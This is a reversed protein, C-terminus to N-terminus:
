PPRLISRHKQCSDKGEATEMRPLTRCPYHIYFNPGKDRIWDPMQIEELFKCMYQDTGTPPVYAGDLIHHKANTEALYGLGAIVSAEMPPTDNTQSFQGINESICTNEMTVKTACETRINNETYYLKTVAGNGFKQRMPKWNRAQKHQCKIHKCAKFEKEPTSENKKARAVDLLDLQEDRWLQAKTKAEGCAEYAKTLFM